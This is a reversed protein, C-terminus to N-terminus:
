VDRLKGTFFANEIEWLKMTGFGQIRLLREPGAERLQAVTTIGARALARVTKPSLAGNLSSDMVHWIPPRIRVPALSKNPYLINEIQRLRAEGIGKIKLLDHPYASHVAEITHIGNKALVSTTNGPLLISLPTESKPKPSRSMRPM